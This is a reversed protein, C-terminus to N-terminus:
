TCGDDDCEEDEDCNDCSSLTFPSKFIVPLGSGPATYTAYLDCEHRSSSMCTNCWGDRIAGPTLDVPVLGASTATCMETM